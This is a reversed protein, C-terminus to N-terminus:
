VQALEMMFFLSQWVTHKSNQETIQSMMDVNWTTVCGVFFLLILEVVCTNWVSGDFFFEQDPLLIISIELSQLSEFDYKKFGQLVTPIDIM